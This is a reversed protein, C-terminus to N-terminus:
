SPARDGEQANTRDGDLSYYAEIVLSVLRALQAHDEARHPFGAVKHWEAKLAILIHEPQLRHARAFRIMDTFARRWSTTAVARDEALLRRFEGSITTFAVPAGTREADWQTGPERERSSVIAVEPRCVHHSSLPTPSADASEPVRFARDQVIGRDSVVGPFARLFAEAVATRTM